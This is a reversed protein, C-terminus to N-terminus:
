ADNCSIALTPALRRRKAGDGRPSAQELLQQFDGLTWLEDLDVDGFLVEPAAERLIDFM